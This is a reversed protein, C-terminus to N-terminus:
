HDTIQLQHRHSRPCRLGHCVTEHGLTSNDKNRKREIVHRGALHPGGHAQGIGNARIVVGNARWSGSVGRWYTGPCRKVCCNENNVLHSRRTPAGPRCGGCFRGSTPRTGEGLPPSLAMILIAVKSVRSRTAGAINHYDAGMLLRPSISAAASASGGSCFCSNSSKRAARSRACPVRIGSGSFM